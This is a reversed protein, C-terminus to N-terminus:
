RSYIAKISTLVQAVEPNINGPIDLSVVPLKSLEQNCVNMRDKLVIAKIATDIDEKMEKPLDHALMGQIADYSIVEVEVDTEAKVSASHQRSKNLAALIGLVVPNDGEKIDLGGIQTENQYVSVKGKVLKYLFYAFNGETLLWQGASFKEKRM